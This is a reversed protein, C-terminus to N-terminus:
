IFKYLNLFTKFQNINIKISDNSSININEINEINFIKYNINKNLYIQDIWKTDVFFGPHNVIVLNINNNCFCFNMMGAGNIFIANKIKSLINLKKFIDKDEFSSIKYNNKLIFNEFEEENFINRGNVVNFNSSIRKFYINEKKENFDYHISVCDRMMYFFSDITLMNRNKDSAFYAKKIKLNHSNKLIDNKNCFVLFFDEIWSINPIIIKLNEKYKKMHLFAFVKPLCETLFHQYNFCWQYLCVFAEDIIVDEKFNSFDENQLFSFHYYDTPVETEKINKKLNSDFCIYVDKKCLVEEYKYINMIDNNLNISDILM